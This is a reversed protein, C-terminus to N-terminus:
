GEGEGHGQRGEVSPRATALMAGWREWFEHIATVATESQGRGIWGRLNTITRHADALAEQEYAPRVALGAATLAEIAKDAGSWAIGEALETLTPDDTGGYTNLFLAEAIIKRPDSM